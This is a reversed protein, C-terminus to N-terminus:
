LQPQWPVTPAPGPLPPRVLVGSSRAADYVGSLMSHLGETGLQLMQRNLQVWDQEVLQRNCCGPLEPPQAVPPDSHM